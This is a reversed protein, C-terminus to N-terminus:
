RRGGRFGGFGGYGGRFGYGYGFGGGYFFGPYFGYAYPGYFGYGYGGGYGYPYGDGLAYAGYGPGYANGYGPGWGGGLDGRDQAEDFAAPKNVAGSLALEHGGKVDIWKDGEAESVAAKGDFVKLEGAQADFEYVGRKLLATQVGNATDVQLDPSGQTNRVIVSARGSQLLVESHKPDSAVMKVVSSGGLRLVVGPELIIEARGAGTSLMQGAALAVQGEAGLMLPKGNLAAQGEVYGITGTGQALASGAMGIVAVTALMTTRFM